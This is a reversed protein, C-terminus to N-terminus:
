AVRMISTVSVFNINSVDPVEEGQNLLVANKIGDSGLLADMLPDAPVVKNYALGTSDLRLPTSIVIKDVDTQVVICDTPNIRFVEYVDDVLELLPGDYTIEFSCLSESGTIYVDTKPLQGSRNIFGLKRYEEMTVEDGVNIEKFDDEFAYVPIPVRMLPIADALRIVPMAVRSRGNRTISTYADSVLPLNVLDEPEGDGDIDISLSAETAYIVNGLSEPTFAAWNAYDYISYERGVFSSFGNYFTEGKFIYDEATSETIEGFPVFGGVVGVFSKTVPLTGGRYLHGVPDSISDLHTGPDFNVYEVGLQISSTTNWSVAVKVGNPNYSLALGEGSIVQAIGFHIRTGDIDIDSIACFTAINSWPIVIRGESVRQFGTRMIIAGDKELAIYAGDAIDSSSPDVSYTVSTVNLRIADKLDLSPIESFQDGNPTSQLQPNGSISFTQYDFDDVAATDFTMSVYDPTAGDSLGGIYALLLTLSQEPVDPDIKPANSFNLFDASFKDIPVGGISVNAPDLIDTAGLQFAASRVAVNSANAIREYSAVGDLDAPELLPSVGPPFTKGEIYAL